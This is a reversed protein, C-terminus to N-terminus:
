RKRGVFKLKGWATDEREVTFHARLSRRVTAPHQLWADYTAREHEIMTALADIRSLMRAVRMQCGRHVFRLFPTLWPEIAVFRGGPKLVRAAEALTQDLDRPLHPLHHLGGQVILV